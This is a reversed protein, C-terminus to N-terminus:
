SGVASFQKVGASWVVRLLTVAAAIWLAQMGFGILAEQPTLKGLLLDVPFALAWRFPLINAALQVISPFLELPALRGSFFLFVVYYMQNIASVRTTWFAAMALTWELSFRLAFALALAPFFALFSWWHFQIAPQFVVVMLIVTPIMIVSTLVKYSINVTIDNHIPHIPRLLHGALTGERIYYEYEWMIWSFTLQNVVMMVIFYAAFDNASLGNVSGGQARAVAAWVVLYILPELIASILWIFMAARYQFEVALNTKFQVWYIELLGRM